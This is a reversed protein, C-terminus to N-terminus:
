TAPGNVHEAVRLYCCPHLFVKEKIKKESPNKPFFFLHKKMRTELEM